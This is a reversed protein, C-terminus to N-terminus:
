YSAFLKVNADFVIFIIIMIILIATNIVATGAGTAARDSARITISREFVPMTSEFGVRPFSIDDNKETTSDQTRLSGTIPGDGM